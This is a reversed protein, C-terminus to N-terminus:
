FRPKPRKVVPIQDFSHKMSAERFEPLLFEFSASRWDNFVHALRKGGAGDDIGLGLHRDHRLAHVLQYLPDALTPAGTAGTDYCDIAEEIEQHTTNTKAIQQHPRGGAMVIAEGLWRSFRSHDGADSAIWAQKMAKDFARRREMGGLKQDFGKQSALAWIDLTLQQDQPSAYTDQTVRNGLAIVWSQYSRDTATNSPWPALPTEALAKAMAMMRAPTGAPSIWGMKKARTEWLTQAKSNYTSGVLWFLDENPVAQLLPKGVLPAKLAWTLGGSLQPFNPAGAQLVLALGRRFWTWQEGREEWTARSSIKLQSIQAQIPAFPLTALGHALEATKVDQLAEEPLSQAMWTNVFAQLPKSKGKLTGAWWNTTMIGHKAPQDLRAGYKALLALAAESRAHFYAPTGNLDLTDPSAGAKLLLETLDLRDTALTAHVLPLLQEFQHIQNNGPVGARVERASLLEDLEGGSLADPRNLAQELAKSWGNSVLLCVLSSSNTPRDSWDNRPRYTETWRHSVLGAPAHALFWGTLREAQYPLSTTITEPTGSLLGANSWDGDPTTPWPSPAWHHEATRELIWGSQRKMWEALAPKGKTDLALADRPDLAGMELMAMLATPHASSRLVRATPSGESAGGLLAQTAKSDSFSTM